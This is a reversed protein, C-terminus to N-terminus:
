RAGKVRRIVAAYTSGDAPSKAIADGWLAALDEIGDLDTRM